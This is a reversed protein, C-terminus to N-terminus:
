VTSPKNINEDMEADTEITRPKIVKKCGNIEEALKALKANSLDFLFNKQQNKNLGSVVSQTKATLTTKTDVM